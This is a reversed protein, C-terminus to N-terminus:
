AAARGQARNEALMLKMSETELRAKEARRAMEAESQLAAEVDARAAIVHESEAVQLDPISQGVPFEIIKAELADGPEYAQEIQRHADDELLQRSRAEGLQYIKAEPETEVPTKIPATEAPMPAPVKRVQEVQSVPTFASELAEEKVPEVHNVPVGKMMRVGLTPAQNSNGVQMLRVTEMRYVGREVTTKREVLVPEVERLIKTEPKDNIVGTNLSEPGNLPNRAKKAFM